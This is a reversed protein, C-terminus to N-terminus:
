PTFAPAVIWIVFITPDLVLFIPKVMWTSQIPYTVLHPVRNDIRAITAACGNVGTDAIHVTATTTNTVRNADITGVVLPKTDPGRFLLDTAIPFSLSPPRRRREANTRM